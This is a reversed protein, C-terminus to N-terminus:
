LHCHPSLGTSLIHTLTSVYRFTSIIFYEGYKLFSLCMEFSVKATKKGNALDRGAETLEAYAFVAAAQNPVSYLREHIYGEIVLKRVFRLADQESMGQGKSYFPLKTHGLRM